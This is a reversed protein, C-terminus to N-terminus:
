RHRRKWAGVADAAMDARVAFPESHITERAAAAREAIQRLVAAPPDTLGLEALTIPLGVRTAFSIV